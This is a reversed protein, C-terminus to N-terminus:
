ILDTKPWMYSPQGPIICNVSKILVFESYICTGKIVYVALQGSGLSSM